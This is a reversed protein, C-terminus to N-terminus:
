VHVFMCVFTCVHVYLCACMHLRVGAYTCMCGCVCVCAGMVGRKEPHPVRTRVQTGWETWPEVLARGSSETGVQHGALHRCM